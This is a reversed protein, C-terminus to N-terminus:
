HGVVLEHISICNLEFLQKLPASIKSVSFETRACKRLIRWTSGRFILMSYGLVQLSLKVNNVLSDQTCNM